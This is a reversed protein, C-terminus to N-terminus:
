RWGVGVPRLWVASLQYPSILINTPPHIPGSKSHWRRPNWRTTARSWKWTSVQGQCLREDTSTKALLILLSCPRFKLRTPDQPWSISLTMYGNRSFGMWRFLQECENFIKYSSTIRLDLSKSLTFDCYSCFSGCLWIKSYQAGTLYRKSGNTWFGMQPLTGTKAFLLWNCCFKSSHSWFAKQHIHSETSRPYSSASCLLQTTLPTQYVRLLVVLLWSLNM